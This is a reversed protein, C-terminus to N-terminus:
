VSDATFLATLTLLLRELFLVTQENSYKKGQIAANLEDIQVKKSAPLYSQGDAEILARIKPTLDEVDAPSLMLSISGAQTSLQRAKSRLASNDALSLGEVRGEELDDVLRAALLKLRVDAFKQNILIGRQGPPVMEGKVLKFCDFYKAFATLDTGVYRLYMLRGEGGAPAVRTDLFELTPIPDARYREWFGPALAKRVDVLQTQLEEKRSGGTIKVGNVLELELLKLM